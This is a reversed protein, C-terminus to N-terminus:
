LQAPECVLVLPLQVAVEVDTAHIVTVLDASNRALCECRLSKSEQLVYTELSENHILGGHPDIRQYSRICFTAFEPAVLLSFRM